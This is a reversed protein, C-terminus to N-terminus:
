PRVSGFATNLFRNAVVPVTSSCHLILPSPSMSVEPVGSPLRVRAVAAAASFESSNFFFQRFATARAVEVQGTYHILFNNLFAGSTPPRIQLCSSIGSMGGRHLPHACRDRRPDRLFIIADQALYYRLVLRLQVAM